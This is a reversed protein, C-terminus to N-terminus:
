PIVGNAEFRSPRRCDNLEDDDIRELGLSSHHPLMAIGQTRQTTRMTAGIRDNGFDSKTSQRM